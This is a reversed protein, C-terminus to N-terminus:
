SFPEGREVPEGFGYFELTLTARQPAVDGARFDVWVTVQVPLGRERDLAVEGAVATVQQMARGHSADLAAVQALNPRFGLRLQGEASAAVRLSAEEFNKLYALATYPAAGVGIGGFAPGCEPPAVEGRADRCRVREGTIYVEKFTDAIGSLFSYFREEAAWGEGSFPWVWERGEMTYRITGAMTLSYSRVQALNDIARRLQAAEAAPTPGVCGLFAVGVLTLWIGFWARL